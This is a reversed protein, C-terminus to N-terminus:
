VREAPVTFGKRKLAKKLRDRFLRVFTRGGQTFTLRRFRTLVPEIDLSAVELDGRESGTRKAIYPTGFPGVALFHGPYNHRGARAGTRLQRPKNAKAPNVGAKNVFISSSWMARTARRLRARVALTRAPVGLKAKGHKLAAKRIERATGTLASVVAGPIAKRETGKLHRTIKAHKIDGRVKLKAVM